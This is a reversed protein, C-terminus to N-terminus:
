KVIAILNCRLTYRDIKHFTVDHNSLIPKIDYMYWVDFWSIRFTGSYTTNNRPDLLFEIEEIM